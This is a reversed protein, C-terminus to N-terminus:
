SVSEPDYSGRDVDVHEPAHLRVMTRVVNPPRQHPTALSVGVMTALAIPVTWAAPQAILAGGWGTGQYGALTAVVASASLGGGVLLGAIAGPPTLGKWWIGLLLLPFFTSAAVAFALEVARAVPLGSTAVALVLTVAVALGTAWRFARVGVVRGALLDQSIVGAVSVVLGSSTSLFAAFAGAGLLATGLDATAGHLM